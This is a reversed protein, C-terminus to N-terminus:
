FERSTYETLWGFFHGFKWAIGGNGSLMYLEWEEPDM